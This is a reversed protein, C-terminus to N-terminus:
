TISQTAALFKKVAHGRKSPRKGSRSIASSIPTDDLHKDCTSLQSGELRFRQVPTLANGDYRAGMSFHNLKLLHLFRLASELADFVTVRGDHGRLWRGNMTVGICRQQGNALLLHLSISAGTAQLQQTTASAALELWSIFQTKTKTPQNRGAITM